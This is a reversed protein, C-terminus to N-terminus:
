AKQITIRTSGRSVSVAIELDRRVVPGRAVMWSFSRGIQSVHGPNRIARRDRRRRRTSRNRYSARSSGDVVAGDTWRGLQEQPKASARGSAFVRGGARVLEPAVGVEGALAEVGGITM